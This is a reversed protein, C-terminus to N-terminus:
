ADEKPTEQAPPLAKGPQIALDEDEIGANRMRNLEAKLKKIERQYGLNEGKVKLINLTSFLLWTLLGAIFALYLFFYLPMVPSQWKLLQVSATQDQNQLAFGLIVIILLAGLLWRIIWM